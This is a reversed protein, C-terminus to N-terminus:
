VSDFEGSLNVEPDKSLSGSDSQFYRINILTNAGKAGDPLM